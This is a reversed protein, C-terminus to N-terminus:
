SGDELTSTASASGSVQLGREDPLAPAEAHELDYEARIAEATGVCYEMYAKVSFTGNPRNVKAHIQEALEVKHERTILGDQVLADLTTLGKWYTDFTRPSWDTFQAKLMARIPNPKPGRKSGCKQTQEM